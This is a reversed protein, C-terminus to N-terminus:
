GVYVRCGNICYESFKEDPIPKIYQMPDIGNPIDIPMYPITATRAAFEAVGESAYYHQVDLVQLFPLWDLDIKQPILRHKHTPKEVLIWRDDTLITM